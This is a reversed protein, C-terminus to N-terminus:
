DRVVTADLRAGEPGILAVTNGVQVSAHLMALALVGGGPVRAVTTLTGARAKTTAEIQWTAPDPLAGEGVVQLQALRWNLHGRDRIRVIPEQGLFCGKKYDIADALGVEMPFHGDTIERGWAPEFAVVRAATAAEPTLTALGRAALTERVRALTATKAGVWYGDAGLQHVRVLWLAGFPGDPEAHSWTAGEALAGVPYGLELLHRDAAPGLLGLLAFDTMPTANFDDTIAFRALAAAVSVGQGGAVVLRADEPRVFIRLEAVVHAKLTLLTAHCGGGVPTTAVSGTVIGNLFRIRDAGSAHIVERAEPSGPGLDLLAAGDTLDSFGRDRGDDDGDARGDDQARTDM